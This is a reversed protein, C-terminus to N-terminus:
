HSIDDNRIVKAVTMVLIRLDFLCSKRHMYECDLLVKETIDVLDRGNVQAWGTIGPTLQHIGSETRLATLDNQNFLAPRPGVMSLHGQLVSFLQPFEDMSSHRLLSGISTLYREPQRLLHTAVQPADIRMTRFKPMKFLRNFRGVRWSWYIVPGKSTLKIAISIIAMPFAFLLLLLFCSLLDFARKLSFETPHNV